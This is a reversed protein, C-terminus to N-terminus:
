LGPIPYDKPYTIKPQWTFIEDGPKLLRRDECAVLYGDCPARFEADAPNDSDTIMTAFVDGKKMEAYRNYKVTDILGYANAHITQALLHPPLRDSKKFKPMYFDLWNILTKLSAVQDIMVAGDQAGLTMGGLEVTLGVKGHDIAYKKITSTQSEWVMYRHHIAEIFAITDYTYEDNNLLVMNECAPSNHVDIVIDAEKIAEKITDRMISASDEVNELNEDAFVRNFDIPKDEPMPDPYVDARTGWERMNNLLGWRNVGILFRITHDNKCKEDTETLFDQYVRYAALVANHENGHVGAVVLIKRNDIGDAEDEDTNAKKGRITVDKFFPTSKSMHMKRMLSLTM